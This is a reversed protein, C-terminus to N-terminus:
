MRVRLRAVEPAIDDPTCRLDPFHCLNDGDNKANKGM